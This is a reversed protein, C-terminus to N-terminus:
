LGITSLESALGPYTTSLYSTLQSAWNAYTSGNQEWLMPSWNAWTSQWNTGSPTWTPDSGTSTWNTKITSLMNNVYSLEGSNLSTSGQSSTLKAPNLRSWLRKMHMRSKYTYGTSTSSSLQTNQNTSGSMPMAAVVGSTALVGATGVSIGIIGLRTTIHKM